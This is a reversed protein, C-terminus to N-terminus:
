TYHRILEQEALLWDDLAHGEQRGRQEYFHYAREAIEDHTPACHGGTYEGMSWEGTIDAAIAEAVQNM